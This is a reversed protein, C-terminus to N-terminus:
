NLCVNFRDLKKSPKKMKEVQRAAKKVVAVRRVQEILLDPTGDDILEGMFVVAFGTDTQIIRVRQYCLQQM